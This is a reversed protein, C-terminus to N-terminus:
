SKKFSKPDKANAFSILENIVDNFDNNEYIGQKLFDNIIDNFSVARDTKANIGTQYAGVSILDESSRYTAILEQIERSAKKHEETIVDNKVRSISELIDIAPYHGLSALKRSLVIHGDLIGRAADAIPENMDDGEVLVTYLGTISGKDSTGTREMTKQLM